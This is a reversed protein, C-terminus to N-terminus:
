KKEVEVVLPGYYDTRTDYWLAIDMLGEANLQGV